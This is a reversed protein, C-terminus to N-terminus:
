PRRRVHRAMARKQAVASAAKSMLGSKIIQGENICQFSSLALYQKHIPELQFKEYNTDMLSYFHVRHAGFLLEPCAKM